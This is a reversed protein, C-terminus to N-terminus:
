PQVLEAQMAATDDLQQLQLSLRQLEASNGTQRALIILARLTSSHRSNLLMVKDYQRRAEGSEGLNQQALGLYYHAEANEPEVAVWTEAIAKLEAWRSNQAPGVVRMFYPWHNEPADWFPTGPLGIKTNEPADMLQKVWKVPVGYYYAHEGQGPSKVTNLGILKGAEDFIASGSAGLMFSSSTRIIFSDDMPYLAKINGTTTLPKVPGGPFGISFVPQEYQLHESDGLEVEPLPLYDVRLLCIDHHWDEKIADPKFTEGRATVNVGAADALVHCNTAVYDKAVVVGSGVGHGGNKTVTHSKVISGKLKFAVEPSPEAMASSGVMSAFGALLVAIPRM